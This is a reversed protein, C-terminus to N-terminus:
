FGEKRLLSRYFDYYKRNLGIKPLLDELDEENLEKQLTGYDEGAKTVATKFKQLYSTAMVTIPTSQPTYLFSYRSRDSKLFTVFYNNRSTEIERKNLFYRM